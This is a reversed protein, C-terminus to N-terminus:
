SPWWGWNDAILMKFAADISWPDDWDVDHLYTHSPQLLGYVKLVLEPCNHGDMTIHWYAPPPISVRTGSLLAGVANINRATLWGEEYLFIITREFRRYGTLTM